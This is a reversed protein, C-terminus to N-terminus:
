TKFLNAVNHGAEECKRYHMVVIKRLKTGNGREETIGRKRAKTQKRSPVYAVPPDM